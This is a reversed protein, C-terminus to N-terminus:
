IADDSLPPDFMTKLDGWLVIDYMEEPGNEGYKKIVLRYLEVLEDRSFNSQYIIKWNVITPPKTAAPIVDVGIESELSADQVKDKMFAERENNFEDQATKAINIGKRSGGRFSKYSYCFRNVEREHIRKKSKRKLDLELSKVEKPIVELLWLAEMSIKMTVLDRSQGKGTNVIARTRSITINQVGFTKVDQKLDKPRFAPKTYYSRKIPSYSGRPRVNDM